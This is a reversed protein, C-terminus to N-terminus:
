AAARLPILQQGVTINFGNNNITGGGSYVTAATLGQMMVAQNQNAQLTGGNFNVYTNNAGGNVFSAQAIGGNLNLIGTNGATNNNNLNIPVNISTTLTGGLVNVTSTGATGWNCVLGGGNVTGFKFTGNYVNIIGTQPPLGAASRSVVVYGTNTVVGGNVDMIGNGSPQPLDGGVGIENCFNSAGAGIYYYGNANPAIGIQFNAGNAGQSAVLAGATQYLAGVGNSVTGISYNFNTVITGSFNVVGSAVTM